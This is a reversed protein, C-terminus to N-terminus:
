GALWLQDRATSGHATTAMGPFLADRADLEGIGKRRHCVARIRRVLNREVSEPFRLSGAVSDRLRLAAGHEAREKAVAGDHLRCKRVRHRKEVLNGLSRSIPLRQGQIFQWRASGASATEAPAIFREEDSRCDSRAM